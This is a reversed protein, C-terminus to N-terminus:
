IVSNRFTSLHLYPMQNASGLWASATDERPHCAPMASLCGLCHWIIHSPSSDDSIGRWMELPSATASLHVRWPDSEIYVQADNCCKSSSQLVSAEVYEPCPPLSSCGPFFCRSITQWSLSALSALGHRLHTMMFSGCWLACSEQQWTSVRRWTCETHVDQRQAPICHLKSSGYVQSSGSLVAQWKVWAKVLDLLKLWAVPSHAGSLFVATQLDAPYGLRHVIVECARVETYCSM